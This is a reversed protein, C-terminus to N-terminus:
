SYRQRAEQKESKPEEMKLESLLMIITRGDIRQLIDKM